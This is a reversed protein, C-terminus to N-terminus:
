VSSGDCKVRRISHVGTEDDFCDSGYLFHPWKRSESSLSLTIECNNSINRRKFATEMAKLVGLAICATKLTSIIGVTLLMRGYVRNQRFRITIESNNYINRRKFAVEM